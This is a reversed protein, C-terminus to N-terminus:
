AAGRKGVPLFVEPPRKAGFLTKKRHKRWKEIRRDVEKDISPEFLRVPEEQRTYNSGWITFRGDVIKTFLVTYRWLDTLRDTRCMKGFWYRAWEDRVYAYRAASYATGIFGKADRCRDIAKRNRDGQSSFGAVLLARAIGEPEGEDLRERVFETM